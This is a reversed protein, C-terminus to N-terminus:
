EENINKMLHTRIIFSRLSASHLENALINRDIWDNDIWDDDYNEDIFLNIYFNLGLETKGTKFESIIKDIIKTTTRVRVTPEKVEENYYLSNFYNDDNNPHLNEPFIEFKLRYVKENGTANDYSLLSLFHDNIKLFGQLWTESTTNKTSFSELAEVCIADLSVVDTSITMKKLIYKKDKHTLINNNLM